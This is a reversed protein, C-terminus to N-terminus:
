GVAISHRQALQTHQADEGLEESTCSSLVKNDYLSNRNKHYYQLNYFLATLRKDAVHLMWIM